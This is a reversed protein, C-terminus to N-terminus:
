ELWVHLIWVWNQVWLASGGSGPSWEARRWKVPVYMGVWGCYWECGVPDGNIVRPWSCCHPYLTKSFSLLIPRCHPRSIAFRDLEFNRRENQSFHPNQTIHFGTSKGNRNDLFGTQFHKTILIASALKLSKQCKVRYMWNLHYLSRDEIDELQM